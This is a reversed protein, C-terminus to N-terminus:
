SFENNEMASTTNFPKNEEEQEVRTEGAGGDRIRELDWMDRVKLNGEDRRCTGRVTGDVVYM